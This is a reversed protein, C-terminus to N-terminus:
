GALPVEADIVNGGDEAHWRFRKTARRVLALGRGGAPATALSKAPVPIPLATPDFPPLDDRIRIAISDGVRVRVDIRHRAAPRPGLGHRIANVLLEECVLQAHHNAKAPVDHTAFFAALDRHLERLSALDAPISREFTPIMRRRSVEREPPAVERRRRGRRHPDARPDGGPRPRRAGTRAARRPRD